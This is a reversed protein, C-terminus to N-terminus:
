GEEEWRFKWLAIAAFFVTWALMACAPMLLAELGLGRWTMADFADIAWRTPTFLSVTQLWSPFIFTPMWAGGLMVLVLIVAISIGRTGGQTRGVAALMLGLASSMLSSLILCILFGAWSGQVRVGFVLMAFAMCGGLSMLSVVAYAGAKAALLSRRTLPSARLRRFWGSERERLLGIALDVMSMLVFQLGIGAFSHAYGNYRAEARATVAESAINFPMPLEFGTGGSAPNNTGSARAETAVRRDLWDKVPELMRRYLQRDSEPINAAGGLDRLRQDVLESARAWSLTNQVVSQIVKPVLLGEVVQREITRSPDYLLSIRPRRNTDFLGIPADAGFRHPLILGVPVKGALVQSRVAADNTVTVRFAADSVFNSIVGRSVASGDLDAIWVSMGGGGKSGGGGTMSGIFSAIFVPVAVYLIVARPDSFFLKLEARMLARIQTWM